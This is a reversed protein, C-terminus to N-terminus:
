AEGMLVAYVEDLDSPRWLHWEQGCAILADRWREQEPRLKGKQSKLEAFILKPPKALVLDPWGAPSNYSKWAFSVMWGLERAALVINGQLQKETMTDAISKPGAM